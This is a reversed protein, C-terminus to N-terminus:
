DEAGPALKIEGLMAQVRGLDARDMPRGDVPSLPSQRVGDAPFVVLEFPVEDAVFRLAPYYETSDLTPRVRREALEYPIGREMLFLSVEESTDAFLHISVASHHDATGHLVPGVLRPNFRALLNMAQAAAVRLVELHRPQDDSRFLRQHVGIAQEIEDNGPLQHAEVVGLHAAAKRKASQYDRVGSEIMLLAAQQAIQTRLNANRANKRSGM